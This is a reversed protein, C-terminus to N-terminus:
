IHILSLDYKVNQPPNAFIGKYVDPCSKWVAPEVKVGSSTSAGTSPAALTRAEQTPTAPTSCGGLLAAVLLAPM